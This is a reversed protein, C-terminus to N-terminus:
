ITMTRMRVIARHQETLIPALILETQQIRRRFRMRDRL